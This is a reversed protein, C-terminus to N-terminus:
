EISILIDIVASHEGLWNSTVIRVSQIEIKAGVQVASDKWFGERDYEIKKDGLDIEVIDSIENFEDEREGIFSISGRSVRINFVGGDYFKWWTESGLLGYKEIYGPNEQSLTDNVGLWGFNEDSRADFITKM